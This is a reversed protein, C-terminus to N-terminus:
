PPPNLVRASFSMTSKLMSCPFFPGRAVFTVLTLQLGLENMGSMRGGDHSPVRCRGCTKEPAPPALWEGPAGESDVKDVGDVRDVEDMRDM